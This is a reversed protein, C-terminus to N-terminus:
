ITTNLNVLEVLGISLSLYERKKGDSNQEFMRDAIEWLFLVLGTSKSELVGRPQWSYFLESLGVIMSLKALECRLGSENLNSM